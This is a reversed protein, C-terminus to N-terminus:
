QETKKNGLAFIPNLVRHFDEARPDLFLFLSTDELIVACILGIPGLQWAPAPLDASLGYCLHPSM